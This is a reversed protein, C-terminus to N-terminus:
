YICLMILNSTKMRYDEFKKQNNLYKGVMMNYLKKSTEYMAVINESIPLEIMQQRKEKDTPVHPVLDTCQNGSIKVDVPESSENTETLENETLKEGKSDTNSNNVAVKTNNSVSVNHGDSIRSTLVANSSALVTSTNDSSSM